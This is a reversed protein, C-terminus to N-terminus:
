DVSLDRAQWVDEANITVVQGRECRFELRDTFVEYSARQNANLMALDYLREIPAEVETGDILELQISSVSIRVGTIPPIAPM